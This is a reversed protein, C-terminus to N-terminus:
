ASGGTRRRAVLDVIATTVDQLSMATSDIRHAGPAQQLPSLRRSADAIDRARMEDELTAHDIASGLQRLRRRAREEPAATLYIKVEAEPFVVTGIDRGEVVVDHGRALQKQLPVLAARVTPQAAIASVAETVETSRLRATVDDGRLKVIPDGLSMEIAGVAAALPGPDSLDLDGDLAALTVARYMAGTDMHAFGLRHAVARAVSSKGAGAPGDIAVIM